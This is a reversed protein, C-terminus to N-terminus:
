GRKRIERAIYNAIQERDSYPIKGLAFDIQEILRELKAELRSPAKSAKIARAREEAALSAAEWKEIQEESPQKAEDLQEPRRQTSLKGDVREAEYVKGIQVWQTKGFHFKDGAEDVFGHWLKGDGDIVKGMYTLAIKM